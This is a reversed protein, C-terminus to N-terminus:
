IWAKAWNIPQLPIKFFSIFVMRKALNNELAVSIYGYDYKMKNKKDWCLRKEIIIKKYHVEGKDDLVILNQGDAHLQLPKTGNKEGDFYMLKWSTNKQIKSRTWILNGSIKFEDTHNFTENQTKLKIEPENDLPISKNNSHTECYYRVRDIHQCLKSYISIRISTSMTTEKAKFYNYALNQIKKYLLGCYYALSKKQPLSTLQIAKEQINLTSIM